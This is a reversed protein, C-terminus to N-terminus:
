DIYTSLIRVVMEYWDKTVKKHMYHTRADNIAEKLQWTKYRSPNSCYEVIQDISNTVIYSSM